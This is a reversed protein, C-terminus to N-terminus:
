ERPPREKLATVGKRRWYALYLRDWAADALRRAKPQLRDVWVLIYIAWVIASLVPGLFTVLVIREGESM